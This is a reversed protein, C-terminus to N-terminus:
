SEAEMDEQGLGQQLAEDAHTPAESAHNTTAGQQLLSLPQEQLEAPQLVADLSETQEAGVGPRRAQIQSAKRQLLSLPQEDEFIDGFCSATDECSEEVSALALSHLGCLLLSIVPWNLLSSIRM